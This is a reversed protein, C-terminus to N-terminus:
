SAVGRASGDRERHWVVALWGRALVCLLIDEVVGQPRHFLREHAFLRLYGLMVVLEHFQGLREEGRIQQFVFFAIHQEPMAEVGVIAEQKKM